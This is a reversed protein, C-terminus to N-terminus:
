GAHGLFPYKWRLSIVNYYKCRLLTYKWKYKCEYRLSLLTKYGTIQMRQVNQFM